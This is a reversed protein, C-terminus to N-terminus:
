DPSRRELAPQAFVAGDELRVATLRDGWVCGTDLGLLGPRRLFGLAAWHGFLITVDTSRRGPADFWPYLGPPIADPGAKFDRDPVGRADCVRLTTLVAAASARREQGQLSPRWASPSRFLAAVEPRWDPGRLADEVEAALAAADDATWDRHLGAHVMVREGERHLLPRRRLWDLLDGADAARLVPELTDRHKTGRAGTAVALLHLDHNGLVATVADDHARAWRLVELSKPGRNVLDGALWLRDRAPDFAIRALLAQLSDFCGQVDGIAYTSV